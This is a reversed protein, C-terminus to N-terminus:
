TIVTIILEAVTMQHDLCPEALILIISVGTTMGTM